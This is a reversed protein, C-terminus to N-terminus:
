PFFMRGRPRGAQPWLPRGSSRERCSQLTHFRHLRLCINRVRPPHTTRAHQLCSCTAAADFTLLVHHLLHDRAGTSDSQVFKQGCEGLSAFLLETRGFWPLVPMSNVVGYCDFVVIARSHDRGGDLSSGPACIRPTTSAELAHFVQVGFVLQARAHKDITISLILSVWLRIIRRYGGGCKNELYNSSPADYRGM